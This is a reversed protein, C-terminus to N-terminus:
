LLPNVPVFIGGCQATAFISFVSEPVKPLYIAVREGSLLGSQLLLQCRHNIQTQLESYTYISDKHLLAKADPSIVAHQHILDNLLEPM